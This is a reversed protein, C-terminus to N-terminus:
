YVSTSIKTTSSKCVFTSSKTYPCMYFKLCVCTSSKTYVHLVKLKCIYFNQYVCTSSQYVCTSSQTYVHLFKPICMYSIKTCVHLVKLICMCFKSYICASSQTYVHIFNSYVSTHFKHWVVEWREKNENEIYTPIHALNLLFLHIM